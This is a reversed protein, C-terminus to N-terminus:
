AVHLRNPREIGKAKGPMWVCSSVDASALFRTRMSPRVVPRPALSLMVPSLDILLCRMFLGPLLRALRGHGGGVDLV